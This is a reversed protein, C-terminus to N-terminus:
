RRAYSRAGSPAFRGDASVDRQAAHKLTHSGPTLGLGEWIVRGSYSEPNSGPENAIHIGKLTPTMVCAGASYGGYTLRDHQKALERLM